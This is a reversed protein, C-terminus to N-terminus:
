VNESILEAEAYVPKSLGTLLATFCAHYSINYSQPLFCYCDIIMPYTGNTLSPDVPVPMLSFHFISSSSLGSDNQFAFTCSSSGIGIIYDTTPESIFTFNNLASRMPELLFEAYDVHMKDTNIPSGKSYASISESIILDKPHLNSTLNGSVSLMFYFFILGSVAGSKGENGSLRFYLTSNPYGSTSIVTMSQIPPFWLPGTVNAFDDKWLYTSVGDNAILPVPRVSSDRYIILPVAFIIVAIVAFM